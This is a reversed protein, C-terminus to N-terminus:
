PLSDTQEADRWSRYFALSGEAKGLEAAVSPDTADMFAATLLASPQPGRLWRDVDVWLQEATRTSVMWDEIFAALHRAAPEGAQAPLANLHPVVRQGSGDITELVDRPSCPSPWSSTTALWWAELFGAIARHEGPTGTTWCQKLGSPLFTPYSWDEMEGTAVLELLRPLFHKFYGLDGWTSMANFLLPGLHESTLQRLPTRRLAEVQAPDVCHDCYDVQDIVRVNGFAQYLVEVAAKLDDRM